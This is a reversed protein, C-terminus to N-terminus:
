EPPTTTEAAPEAVPAPDLKLPLVITASRAGDANPLRAPMPKVGEEARGGQEETLYDIQLESGRGDGNDELQAHETSLQMDAAYKEAITRTVNIYLDYLTIRGDEDVDFREVTSKALVEAFVHPFTTENIERDPETATIVIRGAAEKTLPKIYFGSAPTTIWFVLERCALGDFLPPLTQENLDPGPLNLWSRRGDYHTHGAIIVWLADDPALLARLEALTGAISGQTSDSRVGEIMPADGELEEGGTLVWVDDPALGMREVLATRLTTLTEAFRTRHEADGPHGFIVLARRVGTAPAAPRAEVVLEQACAGSGPLVALLCALRSAIRIM